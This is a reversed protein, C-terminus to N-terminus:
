RRLEKAITQFVENFDPSGEPQVTRAILPKHILGKDKNQDKFLNLVKNIM